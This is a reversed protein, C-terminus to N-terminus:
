RTAIERRQSIQEWGPYNWARPRTMADETVRVLPASDKVPLM